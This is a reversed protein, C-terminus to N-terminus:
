QPIGLELELSVTRAVIAFWDFSLRLTKKCSKFDLSLKAM